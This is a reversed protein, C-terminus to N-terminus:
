LRGVVTVDMILKHVSVQLAHEPEHVQRDPAVPMAGRPEMVENGFGVTEISRVYRFIVVTTAVTLGALILFRCVSKVSRRM